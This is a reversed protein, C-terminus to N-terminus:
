YNTQKSHQANGKLWKLIEFGRAAMNIKCPKTLILSTMERNSTKLICCQRTDPTIILLADLRKYNVNWIFINQELSFDKKTTEFNGVQAADRM